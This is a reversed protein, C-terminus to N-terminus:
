PTITKARTPPACVSWSIPPRRPPAPARPAPPPPPGPPRPRDPRAPPPLVGGQALYTAARQAVMAAEDLAGYREEAFYRSFLVWESCCMVAIGLTMLTTMMSFLGVSISKRM